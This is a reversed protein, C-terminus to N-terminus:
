RRSNRSNPHLRNSILKMAPNLLRKRRRRTGRKRKRKQMLRSIALRKRIAPLLKRKKRM